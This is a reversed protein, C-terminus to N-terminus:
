ALEGNFYSTSFESCPPQVLGFKTGIWVPTFIARDRATMADGLKDEFGGVKRGKMREKVM